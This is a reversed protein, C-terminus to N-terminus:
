KSVRVTKPHHDVDLSRLIKERTASMKGLKEPLTIVPCAWHRAGDSFMAFVLPQGYPFGYPGYSAKWRLRRLTRRTDWGLDLCIDLIVLRAPM